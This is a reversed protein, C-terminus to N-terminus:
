QAVGYSSSRYHTLFRRSERGREGEKERKRGREGEKERKRGREGEKMEEGERQSSSLMDRGAYQPM